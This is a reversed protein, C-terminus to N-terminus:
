GDCKSSPARELAALDVSLRTIPQGADIRLPRGALRAPVPPVPVSASSHGAMADTSAKGANRRFPLKGSEMWRHVISTITLLMALGAIASMAAILAVIRGPHAERRPNHPAHPLDAETTAPQSMAASQILPTRSSEPEAYPAIDLQRPNRDGISAVTRGSDVPLEPTVMLPRVHPVSTPIPPLVKAPKQESPTVSIQQPIATTATPVSAAASAVSKTEIPEPFAPLTTVRISARAFVLVAGSELPRTTQEAAESDHSAAGLPAFIRIQAASDAPQGLLEVVRGLTALDAPMKVIVPRDILNVFALQVTASAAKEGARSPGRTGVVVLDNPSLAPVESSGLYIQEAFTGGRFIRVAKDAQPTIGGARKILETLQCVAPAAYAGPRAVEGMVGYYITHANASPLSESQASASLPPETASEAAHSASLSTTWILLAIVLPWLRM